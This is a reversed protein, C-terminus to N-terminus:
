HVIRNTKVFAHLGTAVVAEMVCFQGTVRGTGKATIGKWSVARAIGPKNEM